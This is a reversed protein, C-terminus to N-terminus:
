EANGEREELSEPKVGNLMADPILRPETELVKQEEKGRRRIVKLPKPTSPPAPEPKPEKRQRKQPTPVVKIVVDCRTKEVAEPVVSSRVKIVRKPSSRQVSRKVPSTKGDPIRPLYANTNLNRRELGPVRLHILEAPLFLNDTKHSVGIVEVWGTVPIDPNEAVKERARDSGFRVIEILDKETKM